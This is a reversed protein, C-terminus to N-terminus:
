LFPEDDAYSRSVDVDYHKLIYRVTQVTEDEEETRELAERLELLTLGMGLPLLIAKLWNVFGGGYEVDDMPVRLVNACVDADVQNLSLPESESGSENRKFFKLYVM